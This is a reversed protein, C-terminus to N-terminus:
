ATKNGVGAFLSITDCGIIAYWFPLARCEEEGLVSAYTHIPVWRQHKGSGYETWLKDIGLDFFVYLSISIVAVDTDNAVTM